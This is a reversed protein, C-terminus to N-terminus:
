NGPRQNFINTLFTKPDFRTKVNNEIKGEDRNCSQSGMQADVGPFLLAQPPTLLSPREGQSALCARAANALDAPLEFSCGCGPARALIIGAM